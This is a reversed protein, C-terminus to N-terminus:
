AFNDHLDCDVLAVILLLFFPIPTVFHSLSRNQVQVQIQKSQCIRAVEGWGLHPAQRAYAVESVSKHLLCKKKSPSVVGWNNLCM